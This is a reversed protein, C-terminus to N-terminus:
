KEIRLAKGQTLVEAVRHRANNVIRSFPARFVKTERAANEHYQRGCDALRHAELEDLMLSVEEL